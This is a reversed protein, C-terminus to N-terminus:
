GLTELYVTCYFAASKCHWSQGHEHLICQVHGCAYTSRRVEFFRRRVLSLAFVHLIIGALCALEGPANAVGGEWSFWQAM